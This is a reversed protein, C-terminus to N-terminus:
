RLHTREILQIGRSCLAQVVELPPPAREFVTGLVGYVRGLIEEKKEQKTLKVMLDLEKGELQVAPHEMLFDLVCEWLSPASHLLCKSMLEKVGPVEVKIGHEGTSSLDERKLTPSHEGKASYLHPNNAGISSVSHQSVCIGEETSISVESM